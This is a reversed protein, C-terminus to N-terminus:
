NGANQKLGPQRVDADWILQGQEQVEAATLKPFRILQLDDDFAEFQNIDTLTKTEATPFFGTPEEYEYVMLFQGDSQFGDPLELGPPSATWTHPVGPAITVLSTPPIVYIDGNLEVLAVGNLVIIRETVFIRKGAETEAIHVHRPLRHTETFPIIGIQGRFSSAVTRNPPRAVLNKTSRGVSLEHMTLGPIFTFPNKINAGQGHSIICGNPLELGVM